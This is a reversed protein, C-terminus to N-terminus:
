KLWLPDGGPRDGLVRGDRGHVPPDLAALLSALDQRVVRGHRGFQADPPGVARVTLVRVAAKDVEVV